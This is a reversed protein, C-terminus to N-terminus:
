TVVKHFKQKVAKSGHRPLLAHHVEHAEREDVEGDLLVILGRQQQAAASRQSFWSKVSRMTM